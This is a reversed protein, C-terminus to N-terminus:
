NESPQLSAVRTIQVGNLRLATKHLQQVAAAQVFAELAVPTASSFHWARFDIGGM